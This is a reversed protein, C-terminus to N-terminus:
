QKVEQLIQYAAELADTEEATRSHGRSAHPLNSAFEQYSIAIEAELRKIQLYPLMLKLFDAAQMYMIRWQYCKRRGFRRAQYITGGYTQQLWEIVQLNTNTIFVR